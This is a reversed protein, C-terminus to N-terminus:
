REPIAADSPRNEPDGFYHYVLEAARVRPRGEVRRLGAQQEELTNTELVVVIRGSTKETVYVDIGPCNELDQACAEAHSPECLVLIGSYHM